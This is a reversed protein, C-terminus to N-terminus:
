LAKPTKLFAEDFINLCPTKIGQFINKWHFVVRLVPVPEEEGPEKFGIIVNTEDKKFFIRLDKNMLETLKGTLDERQVNLTKKNVYYVHCYGAKLMDVMQELSLHWMSKLARHSHAGTLILFTFKKINDLNQRQAWLYEIYEIKERRDREMIEKIIGAALKKEESMRPDSLIDKIIPAINGAKVGLIDKKLYSAKKEIVEKRTGIQCGDPYEKFRNLKEMVWEEHGKNYRFNSWSVTSPEFLLFDTLSNQGINARTGTGRSVFKIEVYVERGDELALKINGPSTYEDGVHTAREIDPCDRKIKRELAKVCRFLKHKREDESIEIGNLLKVLVLEGERIKGREFKGM